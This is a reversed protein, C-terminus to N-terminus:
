VHWPIRRELARLCQDMGWGAVGIILMGIIVVETDLYQRATNMMYGLGSQAAVLEAAVLIAWSSGLAVRLGAVVVPISSPLAVEFFIRRDNAGLSRAARVLIPDTTRVGTYANIVCPIFSGISILFIKPAEGIGFWLIALPIWAIPPIPRFLEFLPDTVEEVRRFWGMLTGLTIGLVSGIAFGLLVRRLSVGFQVYISSGYVPGTLVEWFRIAISSPPPM